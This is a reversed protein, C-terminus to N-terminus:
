TTISGRTYQGDRRAVGNHRIPVAAYDLAALKSRAPAYREIAQWLKDAQDRTIPVGLKVIYEAWASAKGHLQEGNRVISGDRRRGSRGEIIAVEGFGLRRIVERVAWPTGKKRHLAMSGKVLARRADESEALEWGDVALAWALWPLWAVPCRDADWLTRLIEPAVSPRMVCALAAELPTQNSPLLPERMM